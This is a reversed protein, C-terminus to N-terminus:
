LKIWKSKWALYIEGAIIVGHLALLIWFTTATDISPLAATAKRIPQQQPVTYQPTPASL